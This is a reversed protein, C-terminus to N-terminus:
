YPAYRSYVNALRLSMAHASVSFRKALERVRRDDDIADIGNCADLMRKPMLLSAAFFNAEIEEVDRALSSVDNRYNV